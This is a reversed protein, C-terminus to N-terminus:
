VDAREPGPQDAPLRSGSRFCLVSQRIYRPGLPSIHSRPTCQVTIFHRRQFAVLNFPQSPGSRQDTSPRNLLGPPRLCVCSRIAQPNIPCCCPIYFETPTFVCCHTHYKWQFCTLVTQFAILFHIGAGEHDVVAPNQPSVLFPWTCNCGM